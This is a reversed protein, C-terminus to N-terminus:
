LVVNLNGGDESRALPAQTFVLATLILTWCEELQEGHKGTSSVPIPELFLIYIFDFIFFLIITVM